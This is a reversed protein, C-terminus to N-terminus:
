NEAPMQWQGADNRQLAFCKIIADRNLPGYIHPFLTSVAPGASAQEPPPIPPEFKLPATLCQPDIELVLLQGPLSDFYTNAIEVLLDAGATCHVFGEQAFTAPRYPQDQPQSHYYDAPVLHFIPQAM